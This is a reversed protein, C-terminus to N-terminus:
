YLPKHAQSATERAGGGWSWAASTPLSLLGGSYHTQPNGNAVFLLRRTLCLKLIIRLHHVTFLNSWM